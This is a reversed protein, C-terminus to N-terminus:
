VKDLANNPPPFAANHKSGSRILVRTEIAVSLEWQTIIPSFRILVRAVENIILDEENSTLRLVMFNGILQFNPEIRGSNTSTDSFIGMSKYLSFHKLCELAKMKSQILKMKAPFSSLWLIKSPNSNRGFKVGSQLTLRGQAESFDIYLITLM